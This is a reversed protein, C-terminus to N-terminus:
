IKQLWYNSTVNKKGVICNAEKSIQTAKIASTNTNKEEEQDLYTELRINEQEM